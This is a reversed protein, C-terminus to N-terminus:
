ELFKEFRRPQVELEFGEQHMVELYIEINDNLQMDFLEKEEDINFKTDFDSLKEIEVNWPFYIENDEDEECEPDLEGYLYRSLTWVNDEWIGQGTGDLLFAIRDDMLEVERKYVKCDFMWNDGTDYCFSFKDGLDSLSHEKMPFENENNWGEAIFVDPSFTIKGKYFLFCHEFEARVATCMACGLEILNIDERVLIIRNFRDKKYRYEMKIKKYNM